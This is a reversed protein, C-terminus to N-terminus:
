NTTLRPDFTKVVVKASGNWPESGLIVCVLYEDESVFGKETLYNIFAKLNTVQSSRDVSGYSFSNYMFPKKWHPRRFFNWKQWGIIPTDM